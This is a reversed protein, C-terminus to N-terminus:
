SAAASIALAAEYRELSVAVGDLEHTPLYNGDHGRVNPPQTEITMATAFDNEGVAFEFDASYVMFEKSDKDTIKAEYIDGGNQGRPYILATRSQGAVDWTAPELTMVSGEGDDPFTAYSRIIRRLVDVVKGVKQQREALQDRVSEVYSESMNLISYWQFKIKASITIV